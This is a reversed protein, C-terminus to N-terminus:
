QKLGGRLKAVWFLSMVQRHTCSDFNLVERLIRVLTTLLDMGAIFKEPLKLGHLRVQSSIQLHPCSSFRCQKDVITNGM